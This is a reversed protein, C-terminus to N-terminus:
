ALVVNHLGPGPIPAPSSPAAPAETPTAPPAPQPVSPAASLAQLKADASLEKYDKEIVPVFDSVFYSFLAKVDEVTQVDARIDLGKAAIDALVDPGLAEFRQVLGLIADRTAPANKMGDRLIALLMAAHKIPWSVVSIVEEGIKKIVTLVSM